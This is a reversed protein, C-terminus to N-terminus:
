LRHMILMSDKGHLPSLHKRYCYTDQVPMNCINCDIPIGHAYVISQTTLASYAFHLKLLHGSNECSEGLEYCSHCLDFCGTLCQDCDKMMDTKSRRTFCRYKPNPFKRRYYAGQHIEKGCGNCSANGEGGTYSYPGINGRYLARLFTYLRHSNPQNCLQGEHYCKVCLDFGGDHRNCLICGAIPFTLDVLPQPFYCCVTSGARYSAQM